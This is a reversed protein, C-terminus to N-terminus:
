LLKSYDLYFDRGSEEICGGGRKMLSVRLYETELSDLHETSPSFRGQGHAYDPFTHISLGLGTLEAEHPEMSSGLGPFGWSMRPAPHWHPWPVCPVAVGVPPCSEPLLHPVPSLSHAAGCTALVQPFVARSGLCCPVAWPVDICATPPLWPATRSQMSATKWSM